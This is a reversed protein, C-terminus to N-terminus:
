TSKYTNFNRETTSSREKLGEGEVYHTSNLQKMGQKIFKMKHWVTKMNYTASEEGWIDHVIALFDTHGALHNLFRFPKPKTEEEEVCIISLPAHDSCGPEMILIEVHHLQLMWEANVLGRDLTRYTHGNTWTYDRGTARIITLGTDDLFNSFDRVEVKQVPSGIQRDDESLIANYDGIALWPAQMTSQIQTLDVWLTRRAETTHLGYVAIFAFKMNLTRVSVIGHIFQEAM